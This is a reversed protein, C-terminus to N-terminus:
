NTEMKMHKNFDWAPRLRKFVDRKIENLCLMCTKQRWLVSNPKLHHVTMCSKHTQPDPIALMTAVLHGVQFRKCLLYTLASAYIKKLGPM